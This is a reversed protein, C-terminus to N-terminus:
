APSYVVCYVDPDVLDQAPSLCVRPLPDITLNCSCRSVSIQASFMSTQQAIVTAHAMSSSAENDM